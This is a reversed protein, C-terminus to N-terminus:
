CKQAFVCYFWHNKMMKSRVCLLVVQKKFVHQHETSYFWHKEIAKQWMSYFWHKNLWQKTGYQLVLATKITKPWYRLDMTKKFEDM